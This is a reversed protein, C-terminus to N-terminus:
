VISFFSIHMEVAINMMQLGFGGNFYAVIYLINVISHRRGKVTQFKQKYFSSINSSLTEESSRTRSHTKPKNTIHLTCVQRNLSILSLNAHPLSAKARSRGCVPEPVLKCYREGRQPKVVGSSPSLSLGHSLCASEWLRRAPSSKHNSLM